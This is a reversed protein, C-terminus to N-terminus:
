SQKIIGARMPLFFRQSKFASACQEIGSLLTVASMIGQGLFTWYRSLFHCMVVMINCITIFKAAPKGFLVLHKLKALLNYTSIKLQTARRKIWIFYQCGVVLQTFHQLLVWRYYHSPNRHSRNTATVQQVQACGTLLCWGEFSRHRQKRVTEGQFTFEQIYVYGCWM